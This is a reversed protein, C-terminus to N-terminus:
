GCLWTLLTRCMRLTNLGTHKVLIWLLVITMVMKLVKPLMFALSFLWMILILGTRSSIMWTLSLVQHSPKGILVVRTTLAQSGIVLPSESLTWVMHLLRRSILKLSGNLETNISDGTEMVMVWINCSLMNVETQLTMQFVMGFSKPVLWGTNQLLGVVWISEEQLSKVM